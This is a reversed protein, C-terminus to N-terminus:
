LLLRGRQLPHSTMTVLYHNIVHSTWALLSVLGVVRSQSLCENNLIDSKSCMQPLYHRKKVRSASPEYGPFALPVRGPKVKRSPTLSAFVQARQESYSAEGRPQIVQKLLVPRAGEKVEQIGYPIEDSSSIKPYM